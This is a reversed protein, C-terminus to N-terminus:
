ALVDGADELSEDELTEDGLTEDELPDDLDAAANAQALYEFDQDSIGLTQRYEGAEPEAQFEVVGHNAEVIRRIAELDVRFFEKRFNVRNVRYRHLARHLNNELKPANDSAIMMHVDFPFPVSADGLERVRDAPDRRRTMGVKYIHQGFAGLNSIVYVHGAKTLEAQARTRRGREEAEALKQRLAEVETSHEAGAKKMAAAIAQEIMRREREVRELERSYERAVRAEERIQERIKQQQERQSERRLVEEYDAQLQKLIQRELKSPVSYGNRRCFEIASQLRDKTAQYNDSRLKSTWWKRTEDLFREAMRHVANVSDAASELQRKLVRRQDDFERRTDSELRERIHALSRQLGRLQQTRDLLLSTRDNLLQELKRQRTLFQSLNERHRFTVSFLVGGAVLFLFTLLVSLVPNWLLSVVAFTAGSLALSAAALAFLEFKGWPERPLPSLDPDEVAHLYDVFFVPARCQPCRRNKKTAEDAVLLRSDCEPCWRVHPLEPEVVLWELTQVETWDSLDEVDRVFAGPSVRGADVLGRLRQRSFPGGQRVGTSIKWSVPDQASPATGFM